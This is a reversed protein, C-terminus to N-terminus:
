RRAVVFDATEGDREVVHEHPEVGSELVFTAEDGVCAVFQPCRECKQLRFQLEGQTARACM